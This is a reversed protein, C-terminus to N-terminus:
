AKGGYKERLYKIHSALSLIDIISIGEDHAEKLAKYIERQEQQTWKTM